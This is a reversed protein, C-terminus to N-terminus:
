YLFITEHDHVRSREIEACSQQLYENLQKTIKTLKSNHELLKLHSDSLRNYAEWAIEALNKYPNM